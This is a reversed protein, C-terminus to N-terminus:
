KEKLVYKVVKIPKAGEFAVDEINIIYNNDIGILEFKTNSKHLFEWETVDSYKDIKKGNVSIIDLLAGEGTEKLNSYYFSIAKEKESSTSLFNKYTVEDGIKLKELMEIEDKGFKKLYLLIITFILNIISKLIM